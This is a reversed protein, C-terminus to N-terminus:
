FTQARNPAIAFGAASRQTLDSSHYDFFGLLRRCLVVHASSDDMNLAQQVLGSNRGRQAAGKSGPRAFLIVVALEVVQQPLKVLRRLVETKTKV